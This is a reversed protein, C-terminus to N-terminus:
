VHLPMILFLSIKLPSSHTIDKDEDTYDQTEQEYM